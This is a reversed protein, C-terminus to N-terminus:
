HEIHTVSRFLTEVTMLSPGELGFRTLLLVLMTLPFTSSSKVTILLYPVRRSVYAVYSNM